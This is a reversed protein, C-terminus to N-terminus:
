SFWGHLSEWSLKKPQSGAAHHLPSDFEFELLEAFKFGFDCINWSTFWPSMNPQHMIFFSALFNRAVTGKLRAIYISLRLFSKDSAKRRWFGGSLLSSRFIDKFINQWIQSCLSLTFCGTVDIKCGQQPHPSPSLSMKAELPLQLLLVERIQHFYHIRWKRRQVVYALEWVKKICM